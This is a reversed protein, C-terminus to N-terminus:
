NSGGEGQSGGTPYTVWPLGLEDHQLIEFGKGIGSSTPLNPNCYIQFTKSDMPAVWIMSTM